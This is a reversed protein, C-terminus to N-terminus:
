FMKEFVKYLWKVLNVNKIYIVIGKRVQSLTEINHLYFPRSFILVPLVYDHRAREAIGMAERVWYHVFKLANLSSKLIKEM